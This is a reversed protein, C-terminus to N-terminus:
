HTRSKRKERYRARQEKLKDPNNKRWEKLKQYAQGKHQERYIKMRERKKQKQEEKKEESTKVKSIDIVKGINDEIAMKAVNLMEDDTEDTKQFFEIVVSLHVKM